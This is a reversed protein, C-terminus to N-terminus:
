REEGSAAAVPETSAAPAMEEVIMKLAVWQKNTLSYLLDLLTHHGEGSPIESRLIREAESFDM